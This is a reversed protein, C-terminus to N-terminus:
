SLTNTEVKTKNNECSTDGCSTNGSCMAKAVAAQAPTLTFKTGMENFVGLANQDGAKMAAEKLGNVFNKVAECM